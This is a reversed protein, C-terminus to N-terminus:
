DEASPRVLGFFGVLSSTFMVWVKGYGGWWLRSQGVRDGGHSHNALDAIRFLSLAQIPNFHAELQSWLKQSFLYHINWPSCPGPNFDDQCVRSDCSKVRSKKKPRVIDHSVYRVRFGTRMNTAEWQCTSREQSYVWVITWFILANRCIGNDSDVIFTNVRTSDFFAFRYGDRRYVLCPRSRGSWKQHWAFIMRPFVSIM